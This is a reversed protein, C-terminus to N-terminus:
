IQRTEEEAGEVAGGGREETEKTGTYERGILVRVKEARAADAKESM